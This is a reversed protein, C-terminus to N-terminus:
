QSIIMRNKGKLRLSISVMPRFAKASIFTTIAM